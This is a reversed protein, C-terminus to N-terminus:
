LKTGFETSRVIDGVTNAYQSNDTEDKKEEFTYLIVTGRTNDKDKSVVAYQVVKGDTTSEKYATHLVSNQIVDTDEVTSYQEKVWKDLTTKLLDQGGVTVTVMDPKDAGRPKIVSPSPVTNGNKDVEGAYVVEWESPIEATYNESDAFLAQRTKQAVAQQEKSTNQVSQKDDKKQNNYVYYGAGGVVAVVLVTLLAGAAGIGKENKLIKQM